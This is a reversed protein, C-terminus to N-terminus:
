DEPYDGRRPKRSTFGLNYLRWAMSLASVGFAAALVVVDPGDRRAAATVRPEPMLLEAAFRNAERERLEEPTRIRRPAPAHDVARTVVSGRIELRHLEWHGVEHAITFRRRAPWRAVEDANVRVECTALDLVGSVGAPLPRDVVRLGCLSEAIDEVPVAPEAPLGYARDYRRLVDRAAAIEREGTVEMVPDYRAGAAARGIRGPALAM